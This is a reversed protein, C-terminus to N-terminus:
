YERPYSSVLYRIVAVSLYRVKQQKFPKLLSITRTVGLCIALFISFAVAMDWLYTWASCSNESGFLIGTQRKSWDSIGVPLITM